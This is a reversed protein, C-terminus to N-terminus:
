SSPGSFPSKIFALFFSSCLRFLFHFFIASIFYFYLRVSCFQVFVAPFHRLSVDMSVTFYIFHVCWSNFLDCAVFLLCVRVCM